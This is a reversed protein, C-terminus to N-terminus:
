VLKCIDYHDWLISSIMHYFGHSSAFRALCCCHALCVLLWAFTPLSSKKPKLDYIFLYEREISWGFTRSVDTLKNPTSRFTIDGKSCCLSVAVLIGRTLGHILEPSRCRLMAQKLLGTYKAAWAYLRQIWLFVTAYQKNSAVLRGSPNVGNM